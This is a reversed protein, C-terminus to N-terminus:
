RGGPKDSNLLSRLMDEPLNLKRAAEALNGGCEQLTKNAMSAFDASTEETMASDIAKAGHTDDTAFQAERRYVLKCEGIGIVDGDRLLASLVVAGNLYTGPRM